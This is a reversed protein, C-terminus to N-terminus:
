NVQQSSITKRARVKQGKQNKGRLKNGDRSLTLKDIYVGDDWIIEYHREVSPSPLHRCVARSRAGIATNDARIVVKAKGGAWIWTGVIPDDKEESAALLPSSLLLPLILLIVYFRSM